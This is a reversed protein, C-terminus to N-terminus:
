GISIYIADIIVYPSAHDFSHIDLMLYHLPCIGQKTFYFNDVLKLQPIEKWYFDVGGKLLILSLLCIYKTSNINELLNMRDLRIM